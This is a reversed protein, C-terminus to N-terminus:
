PKSVSCQSAPSLPICHRGQGLVMRLFISLFFRGGGRPRGFHHVGPAGRHLARVRHWLMAFNLGINMDGKKLSKAKQEPTKEHFGQFGAALHLMSTHLICSHGGAYKEERTSLGGITKKVRTKKLLPQGLKAEASAKLWGSLLSNRSAVSRWGRMLSFVFSTYTNLGFHASRYVLCPAWFFAPCPPRKRPPAV